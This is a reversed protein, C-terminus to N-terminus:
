GGSGAKKPETLFAIANRFKQIDTLHGLDRLLENFVRAIIEDPTREIDDYSFDASAVATYKPRDVIAVSGRDIPWGAIQGLRRYYLPHFGDQGCNLQLDLVRLEANLRFSGFYGSSQWVAKALNLVSALDAAADYLSWSPATGPYNTQTIFGIDGDASTHWRREHKLEPDLFRIEFWNRSRSFEHTADQNSLLRQLGPNQGFVLDAFVKESVYDMPFHPHDNPVLLVRFFSESAAIGGSPGQWKISLKERLADLRPELSKALSQLQRKRELVARLQSANAPESKDEVRVYVPNVVGKKSILCIESAERVMVACLKKESDTPLICDAVEFMPSPFLNSSILNAVRTKLEGPNLVGVVSEPRGDVESVGVIVLGGFTNAMAAISQIFGESLDEKFDLRYGERPRAERPQDIQTFERILQYLAAATISRLNTHYLDGAM